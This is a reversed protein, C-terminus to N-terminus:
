KEVVFVSRHGDVTLQFSTKGNKRVAPLRKKIEGTHPDWLELKQAGSLEVEVTKPAPEPNAFFRLNKGNWVKHINRLRTRGTFKLAYRGAFKELAADLSAPDPKEVFVANEHTLLERVKGAVKADDATRTSKVPTQSTFVLTGGQGVFTEIKELNEPSIVRCAPLVLTSFSNYQVGNNLLLKGDVASCQGDLVEPHLFMFDYGLSDFLTVGVDVYDLGPIEVGGRYHGLPGDMYHGGQITHIPYLVAIDGAWRADNQMLANLRSLYDTFVRLSDAYIPNRLSLEPRFTVQATDYWVAHPILLNIGKAYQDM